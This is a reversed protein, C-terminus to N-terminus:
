KARYQVWHQVDSIMGGNTVATSSERSDLRYYKFMKYYDTYDCIRYDFRFWRLAGQCSDWSTRDRVIYNAIGQNNTYGTGGYEYNTTSDFAGFYKYGFGTGPGTGKKNYIAREAIGNSKNTDYMWHWYIYGGWRNSADRKATANEYSTYASRNWNLYYWNGTDFGSPFSAYQFSGSGSRVWYSDYQTYGSLSTERSETETRQQYTWKESVLQAGTPLQSDLVWGSVPKLEWRATLTQDTGTSFTTTEGAKQGDADYWGLFDYYDRVPTPLAGIATGNPVERSKVDCVGGGANFYLTYSNRMRDFADADVPEITGKALLEQNTVEGCVLLKDTVSLRGDVSANSEYLTLNRCLLANTTYSDVTITGQMGLRVSEGSLVMALGSASVKVQNLVVESSSLQLPIHGKGDFTAKNIVTEDADSVITLDSFSNGFGYLEFYETGAPVTLTRGSLEAAGQKLDNLYLVVNKAGSSVAAEAVGACSANVLVRDVGEFANEGLFTVDATVGIDHIATCGRFAGSGISTITGGDLGTLSTCGAFAESPIKTIFQSLHVAQIATNGQFAGASLGTIKVVDGGGVNMYEPIVVCNDTGTYGTITGTDQDVKLGASGATREAVYDAVEYPIEFPIVGNQQDTYESSLTSYDEFEHTEDDMVSQTYVFYSQTSMDYGVVGFVHATGALVWRHYGPKTAQTTWSNTVEEQVKKSYVTSSTYEDSSSRQTSLGSATSAQGGQLYSKGYGYTESIKESVGVSTSRSASSTSSGGFSANSNWSSNVTTSNSHLHSGSLGGSVEWGNETTTKEEHTTERGNSYGIGLGGGLGGGTSASAGEFGVSYSKPTWSINGDVKFNQTKKTTDTEENTKSHNIKSNLEWKGERSDLTTKDTSGSRGSSVNWTGTESRAITEAEEKTYGREKASQENISTVENWEESLTWSSSETTAEALAKTYGNMLSEDTAITYTETASKTVGDGSIYGFDKIVQLPVNQVEGIEYVFLIVDGEEYVIPDDLQSKAWTKNRESTWNADLIINGTTGVPIRTNRYLKGDEDSWGTFMYSSLKPTPLVVGTDVTYTLRDTDLHIDSNIQVTYTIKEWHAYLEYDEAAGAPIKKIQDANGGAGDYWGLFRYGPVSLNKLTLGAATNYGYPNPNSIKGNKAQVELYSDGNAIDYTVTYDYQVPKLVTAAQSIEKTGAADSFYKGCQTCIWYAINGNETATPEKRAVAKLTHQCAPQLHKGDRLSEVVLEVDESDVKGSGDLDAANKDVAVGYRGDVYRRMWVVDEANVQGDGNADGALATGAADNEREAADVAAAEGSEDAAPSAAEADPGSMEAPAAAETEAEGAEAGAADESPVDGVTVGPGREVARAAPLIQPVLTLVFVLSLLLAGIRKGLERM